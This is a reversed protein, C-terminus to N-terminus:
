LAVNDCRQWCRYRRQQIFSAMRPNEPLPQM